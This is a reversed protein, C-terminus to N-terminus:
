RTLAVVAFAKVILRWCMCLEVPWYLNHKSKHCLVMFKWRMSHMLSDSASDRSPASAAETYVHYIMFLVYRVISLLPIKCWRIPSGDKFYAAPLDTLIPLKYWVIWRWLCSNRFIHIYAGNRHSKKRLSSNQQQQRYRQHLFHRLTNVPTTLDCSCIKM